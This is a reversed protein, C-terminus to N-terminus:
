RAAQIPKWDSGAIRRGTSDMSLVRWRAADPPLDAQLASLTVLEASLPVPSGTAAFEVRYQHPDPGAGSIWALAVRGEAKKQVSLPVPPTVAGRDPRELVALSDRAFPLREAARRYWAAALATDRPIGDGAEFMQGLYYAARDHGSLAAQSYAAAALLPDRDTMSVAFRFQSEADAPLESLAVEIRQQQPGAAPQDPLGNAAVPELAPPLAEVNRTTEVPALAFGEIASQDLDHLAVVEQSALFSLRSSESGPGTDPAQRGSTEVSCGVGFMAALLIALGAAKPRRGPIRAGIM